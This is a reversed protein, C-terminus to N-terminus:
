RKNLIKEIANIEFGIEILKKTIALDIINQISLRTAHSGKGTGQILPAILNLRVIWYFMKDRPINLIKLADSIKYSEM